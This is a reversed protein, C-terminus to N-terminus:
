ADLYTLNWTPHFFAPYTCGDGDRRIRLYVDDASVITGQWPEHGVKEPQYEVRGGRKAPVNYIRRIYEMSM